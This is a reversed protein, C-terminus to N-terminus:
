LLYLRGVHALFLLLLQFCIEERVGVLVCGLLSSRECGLM